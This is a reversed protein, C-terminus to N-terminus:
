EAAQLFPPIEVARRSAFERRAACTALKHRGDVIFADGDRLVTYGKRRLGTVAAETPDLQVRTVGREAMFRAIADASSARVTLADERTLAKRKPGPPAFARRVVGGAINGGRGEAVAVARSRRAEQEDREAKEAKAAEALRKAEARVLERRRREEASAAERIRKAAERELRKAEAAEARVAREAEAKESRARAAAAAKAEREERKAAALLADADLRAQAAAAKVRARAAEAAIRPDERFAGPAEPLRRVVVPPARPSPSPVRGVRVAPLRVPAPKIRAAAVRAPAPAVDRKLDLEDIKRRIRDTPLVLATSMAALTAGAAHLTRLRAEDAETWDRKAPNALGILKARLSVDGPPRGMVPAAERVTLGDDILLKRLHADLEDNWPTHM